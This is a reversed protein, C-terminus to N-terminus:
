TSVFMREGEREREGDRRREREEREREPVESGDESQCSSGQLTESNVTIVEERCPCWVGPSPVPIFGIYIARSCQRGNRREVRCDM